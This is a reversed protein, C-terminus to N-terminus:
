WTLASCRPKTLARSLSRAAGTTFAIALRAARLLGIACHPMSASLKYVGNIDVYDNFMAWKKDPKIIDYYIVLDEETETHQAIYNVCYIAGKYHKYFDGPTIIRNICLSAVKSGGILSTM